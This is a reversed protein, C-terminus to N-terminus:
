RVEVALALDCHASSSSLAFCVIVCCQFTMTPIMRLLTIHTTGLKERSLDQSLVSCLTDFLTHGRFTLSHDRFSRSLRDRFSALIVFGNGIPKRCLEYPMVISSDFSEM